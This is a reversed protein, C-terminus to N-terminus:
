TIEISLSEISGGINSKRLILQCMRNFERAIIDAEDDEWVWKQLLTAFPLSEGIEFGQATMAARTTQPVGPVMMKFTIYRCKANLWCLVMAGNNVGLNLYSLEYMAARLNLNWAPENFLVFGALEQPLANFASDTDPLFVPFYESLDLKNVFAAWALINSNRDPMYSSCRLTITILKRNALRTELWQKIYRRAQVTSRLAMTDKSCNSFLHSTSHAIPFTTSYRKPFIHPRTKECIYYAEERTSCITVGECTTLLDCLPYLIENRRWRRAFLDICEEYDATEERLGKNNGPVFVVHLKKLKVKIRYQEALALAWAFDFTVPSVELDYFLYLTDKNITKESHTFYGWKNVPYLVALYVVRMFPRLVSGRFSTAREAEQLLRSLFWSMGRSRIKKFVSHQRKKM